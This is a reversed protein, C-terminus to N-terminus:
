NEAKRKQKRYIDILLGIVVFTSCSLPFIEFIGFIFQGDGAKSWNSSTDIYLFLPPILFLQTAFYIISVKKISDAQKSIAKIYYYTTTTFLMILTIIMCIGIYKYPKTGIVFQYFMELIAAFFITIIPIIITFTSVIGVISFILGISTVLYKQKM